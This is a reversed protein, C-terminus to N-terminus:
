LKQQVIYSAVNYIKTAEISISYFRKNLITITNSIAKKKIQIYINYHLLTVLQWLQYSFFFFFVM